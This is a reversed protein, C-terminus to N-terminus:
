VLHLSSYLEGTILSHLVMDHEDYSLHIQKLSKCQFKSEPKLIFAEEHGMNRRRVSLRASIAGAEAKLFTLVASLLRPLRHFYAKTIYQLALVYLSQM